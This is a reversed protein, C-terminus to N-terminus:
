NVDRKLNINLKWTNLFWTYQVDMPSCYALKFGKEYPAVAKLFSLMCLWASFRLLPPDSFFISKTRALASYAWWCSIGCRTVWVTFRARASSSFPILYQGQLLSQLKKWLTVVGVGVGFFMSHINALNGCELAGFCIPLELCLLGMLDTSTSNSNQLIWHSKELQPQYSSKPGEWCRVATCFSM